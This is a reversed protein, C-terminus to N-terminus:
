TAAWEVLGRFGRARDEWNRDDNRKQSPRDTERRSRAM